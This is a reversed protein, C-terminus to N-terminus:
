DGDIIIISKKASLRSAEDLLQKRKEDPTNLPIRLSTGDAGKIEIYAEEEAKKLDEKSKYKTAWITVLTTVIMGLFTGGFQILAVLVKPDINRSGEPKDRLELKVKDKALEKELLQNLEVSSFGECGLSIEEM